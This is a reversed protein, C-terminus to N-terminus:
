THKSVRAGAGKPFFFILRQLNGIFGDDTFVLSKSATWEERVRRKELLHLQRVLQRHNRSLKMMKSQYQLPSISGDVLRVNLIKRRIRLLEQGEKNQDIIKGIANM